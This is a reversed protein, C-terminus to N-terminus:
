KSESHLNMLGQPRKHNIQKTDHEEGTVYAPVHRPDEFPYYVYPEVTVGGAELMNGLVSLAVHPRVHRPDGPYLL